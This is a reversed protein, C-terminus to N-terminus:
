GGGALLKLNRRLEEAQMPGVFSQAQATRDIFVLTPISMVKARDLLAQNRGDYVDVDVLAIEGEFDPYVQRVVAMMEVCSECTLSHFFVLTPQRAAVARDLTVEPAESVASLGLPSAPEASQGKVVLLVVMVAAVGTLVLLQSGLRLANHSPGTM